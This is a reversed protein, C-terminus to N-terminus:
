ITIDGPNNWDEQTIHGVFLPKMFDGRMFWVLFPRDIVMDPKIRAMSPLGLTVSIAVASKARAGVENMKLITQQLAQSVAAPMGVKTVTQLGALWGIDEKRDLDVMPFVLGAYDHILRRRRSLKEAKLILDFGDPPSDFMTMFVFDGNKTELQAIPHPHGDSTYFSAGGEPIRVGPYDIKDAGLITVVKGELLWEVLLDLVSAVGFSNAGFPQLRIIFGRKLLFANIKEFSWSALSEIEPIAGAESRCLLFFEQLFREQTENIAQWTLGPGMLKMDEVKVLVAVIPYTVMTSSM